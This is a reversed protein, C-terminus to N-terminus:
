FLRVRKPGSAVRAIREAKGKRVVWLDADTEARGREAVMFVLGLERTEGSVQWVQLAWDSCVIKAKGEILKQCSAQTTKEEVRCNWLDVRGDTRRVVLGMGGDTSLQGADLLEGEIADLRLVSLGRPDSPPQYIVQIHSSGRRQVVFGTGTVAWARWAGGPESAGDVESLIRSKGQLAHCLGLQGDATQYLANGGGRIFWALPTADQPIGLRETGWPRVALWGTGRVRAYCILFSGSPKQADLGYLEIDAVGVGMPKTVLEKVCDVLHKKLVLVEARDPDFLADRGDSTVIMPAGLPRSTLVESCRVGCRWHGDYSRVWVRSASDRDCCLLVLGGWRDTGITERIEAIDRKAHARLHRAVEVGIGVAFVLAWTLAVVAIPRRLRGPWHERACFALHSTALLGVSCLMGEPAWEVQRLGLRLLMLFVSLPFVIVAGLAVSLVAGEVLASAFMGASFFLLPWAAIRWLMATPIMACPVEIAWGQGPWWRSPAAMHYAAWSPGIVFAAFLLGSLLKWAWLRTRAMPQALLFELGRSAREAALTPAAALLGVVGWFLVLVGEPRHAIGALGRVSKALEVVWALGFPLLVGLALLTVAEGRRERWEKWLLVAIANM